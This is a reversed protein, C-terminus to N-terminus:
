SKKKGKAGHHELYSGIRESSAYTMGSHEVSPEVFDIIFGNDDLVAELTITETDDEAHKVTSSKRASSESKVRKKLEQYESKAESRAAKRAGLLAKSTLTITPTASTEADYNFKISAFYRNGWRSAKANMQTNLYDNMEKYYEKRLAKDKNLNKGKYKELNNSLGLAVVYKLSDWEVPEAIFNIGRLRFDM